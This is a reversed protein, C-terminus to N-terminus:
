DQDAYYLDMNAQGFDFGERYADLAEGDRDGPTFYPNPETGADMGAQFDNYRPHAPHDYKSLAM